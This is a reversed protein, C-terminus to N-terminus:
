FTFGISRGVFSVIGWIAVIVFVGIVGWLMRQKSEKVEAGSGAKTVYEVLGWLFFLVALSTLLPILTMVFETVNGVVGKFDEERASVVLPLALSSITLISTIFRNRM